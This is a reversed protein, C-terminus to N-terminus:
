AGVEGTPEGSEPATGGRADEEGGSADGAGPSEPSSASEAVADVTREVRREFARAPYLWAYLRRALGVDPADEGGLFAAAVRDDTWSGDVLEAEVAGRSRGGANTRVTEVADRLRKRVREAEWAEADPDEELRDRVREVARDFERGPRDLGGVAGAREGARRTHPTSEIRGDSESEADVLRDVSPPDTGRFRVLAYLLTVVSLVLTVVWPAVGERLAVAAERVGAPVVDPAFVVLLAVVLGVAATAGLVPRVSPLRPSM